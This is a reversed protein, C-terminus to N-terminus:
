FTIMRHIVIIGCFMVILQILIEIIIELSSKEPDAEPVFRQITKNLIVVPIFGLVAYQIVNIIEAKDEDSSSFVHNIFSKKSLDKAEQLIDM